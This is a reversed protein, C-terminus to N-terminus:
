ADRGRRLLRQGGRIGIFWFTAYALSLPFGFILTTAKTAADASYRKIDSAAPAPLSDFLATERADVWAESAFALGWGGLAVAMVAAAVHLRHKLRLSAVASIPALALFGLDYPNFHM